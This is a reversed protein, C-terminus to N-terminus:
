HRMMLQQQLWTDIDEELWAVARAGLKVQIPFTPDFADSKPDIKSYITSRSLKTKEIVDTIRLMRKPRHVSTYAQQIDKMQPETSSSINKHQRM